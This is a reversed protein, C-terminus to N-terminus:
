RAATRTSTQVDNVFAPVAVMRMATSVGTCKGTKPDKIGDAFQRLTKLQAACDIGAVIASGVGGISPSQITDFVPRYGGVMGALTGDAEFTLRLRGRRFDHQSRNGRIDRAGGQGWTQALLIDQPETTLVGNEIKGKLVNRNRPPKDSISFSLGRLVKGNSDIVPRDPTNAYIVEVNDDHALSDVGRLLIVQTWEGSAIFQRTGVDYESPQGEAGRWNMTCGMVRYEQNDIGKEGTPSVFEEHDCTDRGGKGTSDGDLDLGWSHAGKVTKLLPRDFMDPNTCINTGNPGFAQAQWLRTLEPENEKLSLRAREEPTQRELFDQRMPLQMGNPCANPEHVVPYSLTQVVFGMVGGTPPAPLKAAATEGVAPALSAPGLAFLSCLLTAGGLTKAMAAKKM